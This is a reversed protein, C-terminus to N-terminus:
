HTINYVFITSTFNQRNYAKFASYAEASEMAALRSSLYNPGDEPSFGKDLMKRMENIGKWDLQQRGGARDASNANEAPSPVPLLVPAQSPRPAQVSDQRVLRVVLNWQM